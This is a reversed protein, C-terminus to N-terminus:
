EQRLAVLPDVGAARRAPVFSAVTAVILLVSAVVIFALPDTARVGYLQHALLRMAGFAGIVGLVIGFLALALAETIVLRLVRRPAAGLAMRIGIERTRQNVSYAIVGYVGVAALLLALAAFGGLLLTNFRPTAMSQDLGQRVSQMTMVPIAPDVAAIERRVAGALTLPDPDTRLFLSMGNFQEQLAPRYITPQPDLRLPYRPDLSEKVDGAIGVVTLWLDAPPGLLQVRRGLPDENPWVTRAFTQNVIAVAPADPGDPTSFDRGRVLPIGITAFYEPTAIRYVAAAAADRSVLPQGEVAYPRGRASRLTMGGVRTVGPLARLREISSTFFAQYQSPERYRTQPVILSISLTNDPDYGRELGQLERFSRIMLTAATLLIAALAVQTVVLTRRLFRGQRASSAGRAAEHLAGHTDIRAMRVAPVLGFLLGTGISLLVAGSLTHWDLRIASAGSPIQSLTNAPIQAVVFRLSWYAALVGAAGGVGALLLSETLMQRVIRQARAGLALRISVERTRALARELLLNALNSCAILLVLGVAALLMLSTSRYTHLWADHLATIRFTWGANTAPYELALRRAITDLEARAQELSVGDALRGITGMHRTVRNTLLAPDFGAVWVATDWMSFDPPLIGVVIYESGDLVVTGGVIAPDQSFHRIWGGHSLMAARMGGPQEDEPLFARGRQPQVRLVSLFTSSVNAGIVSEAVGRGTLSFRAGRHMAIQEFARSQQALDGFNAPAIPERRGAPSLEGIFALREPEDFPLPRLAIGRVVTYMTTNAGIGLALVVLATVSFTPSRWLARSAYRLDQRLTDM